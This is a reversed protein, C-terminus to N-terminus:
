LTVALSRAPTIARLLWSTGAPLRREPGPWNAIFTGPTTALGVSMRARGTLFFPSRTTVMASIPLTRRVKLSGAKMVRKLPWGATARSTELRLPAFMRSVTFVIRATTASSCLCQGDVTFTSKM